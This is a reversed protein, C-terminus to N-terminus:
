KEKDVRNNALQFDPNEFIRTTELVCYNLIQNTLYDSIDPNITKSQTGDVNIYGEIDIEKPIRYYDVYLAKLEFGEKYVKISNLFQTIFTEQYDFSPKQNENIFLNNKNKNKTNWNYLVTEGCDTTTAISYSNSYEFYNDPKKFDASKEDEVIKEFSIDLELLEGIDDISDTKLNDEIKNSLWIKSQQNYLLVFQGKPIKINRNTDNKNVKILYNNYLELSTM